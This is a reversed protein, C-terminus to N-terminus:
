HLLHQAETLLLGTASETTTYTYGLPSYISCDQFPISHLFFNASVTRPNVIIWNGIIYHQYKKRHVSQEVYHVSQDLM